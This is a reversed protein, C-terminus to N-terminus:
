NCSSAQEQQQEKQVVKLDNSRTWNIIVEAALVKHSIQVVMGIADAGESGQEEFDTHTLHVDRVVLKKTKAEILDGVDYAHKAFVFVCDAVFDAIVGNIAFGLGIFGTWLAKSDKVWNQNFFNSYIFVIITFMVLTLLLELKSLLKKIGQMSEARKNLQAGTNVVLTELEERTVQGDCSEDLRAFLDEAPEPDRGMDILRRRLDVSTLVVKHLDMTVTNWIRAAYDRHMEENGRGTVITEFDEDEVPFFFRKLMKVTFSLDSREYHQKVLNNLDRIIELENFARNSRPGIFGDVYRIAILQLIIGQVLLITFSVVLFVFVQKLTAPWNDPVNHPIDTNWIRCNAQHAAGAWVLMTIRYSLTKALPRYKVSHKSLSCAWSAFHSFVEALGFIILLSAWCVTMWKALKFFTANLEPPGITRHRLQYRAILMFAMFPLGSFIVLLLIKLARPTRSIGRAFRDLPLPPQRRHRRIVHNSKTSQAQGLTPRQVSPEMLIQKIEKEPTAPSSLASPCETISPHVTKDM